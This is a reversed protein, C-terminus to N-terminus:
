MVVMAVAVLLGTIIWVAHSALLKQHAHSLTISTSHLFRYSRVNMIGDVVTGLTDCVRMVCVVMRTVYNCCHKYVRGRNLMATFNLIRTVQKTGSFRMLLLVATISSAIQCLEEVNETFYDFINRAYSVGATGFHLRGWEYMSWAVFSGFVAIAMLLWIPRMDYESSRAVMSLTIDDMRSKGYMAVTILRFLAITAFVNGVVNATSLLPISSLQISAMYPIKAFFGPLLPFGIAMMFAIWMVDNLKPAENKIGGMRLINQEGATASILYALGMFLTAKFLAHGVFVLMALSYMKLGCAVFM